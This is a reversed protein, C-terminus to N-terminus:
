ADVLLPTREGNAKLAAQRRKEQVMGIFQKVWNLPRPAPLSSAAGSRAMGDAAAGVAVLGWVFALAGWDGTRAYVTRKKEAPMPIVVETVWSGQGARMLRGDKGVSSGAVGSFGGEGGDCWLLAPAGLEAARSRAHAWMAGGADQHWTRAPALILSPREELASFPAASAFDMCIGSTITLPETRWRGKTLKKIPYDIISLTPPDTSAVM